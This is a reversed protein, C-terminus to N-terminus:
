FNRVLRLNLIGYDEQDPFEQDYDTVQYEPLFFLNPVVEWQLGVKWQTGSNDLETECDESACHLATDAFMNDYVGYGGFLIISNTLNVQATLGLAHGKVYDSDGDDWTYWG